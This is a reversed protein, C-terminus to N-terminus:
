EYGKALTGKAIWVSFVSCYSGYFPPKKPPGEVLAFILRFFTLSKRHRFTFIYVHMSLFGHDTCYLYDGKWHERGLKVDCWNRFHWHRRRIKSPTGESTAPLWQLTIKCGPFPSAKSPSSSSSSSCHLTGKQRPQGRPLLSYSSPSPSPSSFCNFGHHSM